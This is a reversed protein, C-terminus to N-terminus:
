RVELSCDKGAPLLYRVQKATAANDLVILLKKEHMIRRYLTSKGALDDPIHEPPVGFFVLLRHLERNSSADQGSQGYESLDAFYIGDPFRASNKNGWHVILATKGIGGPGSVTAVKTSSSPAAALGDLMALYDGRNTFYGATPPLENPTSSDGSVDANMM